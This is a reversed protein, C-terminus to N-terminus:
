KLEEGITGRPDCMIHWACHHYPAIYSLIATIKRRTTIETVVIDEEINTHINPTPARQSYAASDGM